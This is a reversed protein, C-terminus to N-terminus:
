CGPWIMREPEPIGHYRKVNVETSEWIQVQFDTYRVHELIVKIGPCSVVSSGSRM